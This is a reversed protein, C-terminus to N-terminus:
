NASPAADIHDIVIIPVAMKKPSLKLGLQSEVATFLSPGPNDITTDNAWYLSFDYKGNLGTADIVPLDLQNSIRAAFQEMTENIAQMRTRGKVSIMGARGTPIIPFDEQDLKPSSTNSVPAETSATEAVSEKVKVGNKAVVLDYAQLQRADRHISMHFRDVMLSQLMRRFQEKTAGDQVRAAVDYIESERSNLGAVQYYKVGYAEIVLM